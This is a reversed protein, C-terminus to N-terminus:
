SANRRIALAFCDPSGSSSGNRASSQHYGSSSSPSGFISDTSASILPQSVFRYGRASVAALAVANEEAANVAFAIRMVARLDITEGFQFGVTWQM